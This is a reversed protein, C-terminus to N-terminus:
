ATTVAPVVLFEHERTAIDEGEKSRFRASLYCFGAKQENPIAWNINVIESVGNAEVEMDVSGKYYATRDAAQIEWELTGSLARMEDNVLRLAFKAEDGTRWVKDISEVTIVISKALERLAWFSRKLNGFQDIIGKQNSQDRLLLNIYFDVQPKLSRFHDLCTELFACQYDQSAEAYGDWSPRPGTRYKLIDIQVSTMREFVKESVNTDSQYGISCAGTEYIGYVRDPVHTPVDLMVRLYDVYWGTYPHSVFMIDPHALHLRRCPESEEMYWGVNFCRKGDDYPNAWSDLICPRGEHDYKRIVEYLKPYVNEWLSIYYLAVEGSVYWAAVSPHQRRAIVAETVTRVNENIFEPSLPARIREKWDPVYRRWTAETLYMNHPLGTGGAGIGMIGACDMAAFDDEGGVWATVNAGLYKLLRLDYEMKEGGSMRGSGVLFVRRGNLYLDADKAEFTRMGFNLCPDDQAKGDAILTARLWYLNPEEFSWLLPNPMPLQVRTEVKEGTPVSVKGETSYASGAERRYPEAELAIICTAEKGSENRLCLWVEACQNQLDPRVWMDEIWVDSTRVLRMPYSSIQKDAVITNDKGRRVLDTIDVGPNPSGTAPVPVGNIWVPLELFRGGKLHLHVRGGAWHEPLSITRGVWGTQPLPLPGPLTVQKGTAFPFDTKQEPDWSEAKVQTWKGKLDIERRLRSRTPEKMPRLDVPPLEWEEVRRRFDRPHREKHEYLGFGIPFASFFIQWLINELAKLAEERMAPDAAMELLPFSCHFMKMRSWYHAGDIVKIWGPSLALLPVEGRSVMVELDEEQMTVRQVEAVKKGLAEWDVQNPYSLIRHRDAHTKVQGQAADTEGGGM